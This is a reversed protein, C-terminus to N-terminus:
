APNWSFPPPIAKMFAHSLAASTFRLSEQIVRIAIFRVTPQKHVLEQILM